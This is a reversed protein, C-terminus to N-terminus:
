LVNLGREGPGAPRRRVSGPPADCPLSPSAVISDRLLVSRDSRASTQSAAETARGQGHQPPASPHLAVGVPSNTRQRDTAEAQGTSPPPHSCV